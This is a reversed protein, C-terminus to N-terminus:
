PVLSAPSSFLLLHVVKFKSWKLYAVKSYNISVRLAVMYQPLMRIYATELAKLHQQIKRSILDGRLHKYM